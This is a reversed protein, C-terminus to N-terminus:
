HHAAVRWWRYQHQLQRRGRRGLCDRQRRVPLLDRVVCGAARCLRDVGPRRHQGLRGCQRGAPPRLYRSRGRWLPLRQRPRRSITMASAAWWYDNGAGGLLGDNGAGGDIYDGGAGGDIYDVGAGGLLTDNGEGGLLVDNGEGGDIYDVGAGGVLGDNGEDGILADNGEGGLLM